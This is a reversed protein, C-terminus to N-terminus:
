LLLLWCICAKTLWSCWYLISLTELHVWWGEVLWDLTSIFRSVSHLGWGIVVYLTKIIWLSCGCYLRSLLRYSLWGLIELLWEILWYTLWWWILWNLLWNLRCTQIRVPHCIICACGLSQTGIDTQSLIVLRCGEGDYLISCCGIGGCPLLKRSKNTGFPSKICIRFSM